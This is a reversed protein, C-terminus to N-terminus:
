VKKRFICVCNSYGEITDASQNQISQSMISIFEWGDNDRNELWTTFSGDVAMSYSFQGYQVAM